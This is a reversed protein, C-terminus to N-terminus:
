PEDGSCGTQGDITARNATITSLPSRILYFSGARSFYPEDGAAMAAIASNIAAIHDTSGDGTAGYSQFNRQTALGPAAFFFLFLLILCFGVPYKL